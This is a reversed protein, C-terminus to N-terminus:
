CGDDSYISPDSTAGDYFQKFWRRFDILAKEEKVQLPKAQCKLFQWIECDQQVFYNVGLLSLRGILRSLIGKETFMQLSIKQKNAHLSTTALVIEQNFSTGLFNIQYKLSSFYPGMQTARFFTRGAKYGCFYMEFDMILIGKHKDAKWQMNDRTQNIINEKLGFFHAIKRDFDSRKDHVYDLHSFDATNEGLTQIDINCLLEARGVSSLKGSIVNDIPEPFWYPDHERHHFWIFIWGNIETCRWKKVSSGKPAKRDKAYPVDVCVGDEARFSWEHFPCRICDEGGIKVVDGFGLHAGNHPCYPDMAHVKGNSDRLLIFERGSAKVKLVKGLDLQETEAVPMWGNPIPREHASLDEDPNSYDTYLDDVFFYRLTHYIYRLGNCLSRIFIISVIILLLDFLNFSPTKLELGLTPFIRELIKSGRVIWSSKEADM